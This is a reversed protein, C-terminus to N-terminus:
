AEVAPFVLDRGTIEKPANGFSRAWVVKFVKWNTAVMGQDPRPLQGDLAKSLAPLAHFPVTPYLHHEIHYNMNMYLFRGLWNTEFSRTSKRIDLDDEEMDVHQILTFLIMIPGGILRPLILYIVPIWTEFVIAIAILAVYGAVFARAGWILKPWESEPTVGAIKPDIRGLSYMVMSKIGDTYYGIGSVEKVWGSMMLPKDMAQQTDQGRLMTYTHHGAHAYRRHYPEEFYIFSSIWFVLENLWRSRFATGHASEHSLAYSPVALVISYALFVPVVWWTGMTTHIAYAGAGLMAAWQALWILGPRDSRRMLAKMQKRDLTVGSSAANTAVTKGM